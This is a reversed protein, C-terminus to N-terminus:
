SQFMSSLASGSQKGGHKMAEAQRSNVLLTNINSENINNDQEHQSVNHHSQNFNYSLNHSTCNSAEHGSYANHSQSDQLDSKGGPGTVM